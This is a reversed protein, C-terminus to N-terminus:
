LGGVQDRGQLARPGERDKCRRVLCERLDRGAHQIEQEGIGLRERPNQEIVHNRACSVEAKL